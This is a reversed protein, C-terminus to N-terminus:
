VEVVVPLIMPRRKLQSFIYESLTDRVKNKIFGWDTTRGRTKSLSRIADEVKRRAADLLQESEREYVFGRSILDPSGLLEGTESDVTVVVVLVGDSSLVRRDRLVVQGVDGVGLGDVYVNGCPVSDVVHIGGDASAEIVDGDQAIVVNAEPVGMQMALRKHQALMRYEGHVPVVYRPKLLALMLKIEERSGHGSVHVRAMGPAGQYLVTAGRRMLNDINRYVARENGVIPTSSLIVTDGPQIQVFRHDGNAIRTLASTPEGQSGTCIIVLKKAAIANIRDVEVLVGSPIRLYGLEIAMQANNVMSRGVLAVQRGHKVAADVVQQVRSILSAFTAVIVRGEAGAILDDFTQGIARESPTHGESEVRTSDGCLVLVGEDGIRALASLDAPEDIPTYDIKYDGTNVVIGAPSRLVVAMADPISHNVHLFEVEFAGARIPKGPEVVELHAQDLIRRERLKVGILGITLKSAYVPPFGLQPLLYPLGGIHDEHGHTIFVGRIRDLKDQLYTVDPIVLDVGLMEEDPFMLGGDVIVIDNGYEYVSMNKGIEGVGGLPIIRIPQVRPTTRREPARESSQETRNRRKM